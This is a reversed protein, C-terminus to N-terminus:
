RKPPTRSSSSAGPQDPRCRLFQRRAVRADDYAQTALESKFGTGRHISAYWPMFLDLTEVVDWFAPTSAANDLNVYPRQSGDLVPVRVDLGVVRQRVEDVALGEAPEDLGPFPM